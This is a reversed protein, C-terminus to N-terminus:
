TEQITKKMSLKGSIFYYEIKQFNDTYSENYTLVEMNETALSSLYLKKSQTNYVTIGTADIVATAM